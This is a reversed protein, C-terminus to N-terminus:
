REKEIQKIAEAIVAALAPLDAPNFWMEQHRNKRRPLRSPISLRLFREYGSGGTVLQADGSKAEFPQKM